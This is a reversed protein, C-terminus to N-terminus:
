DPSLIEELKMRTQWENAIIRYVIGSIQSPEHEDSAAKQSKDSAALVLLPTVLMLVPLLWLARRSRHVPM